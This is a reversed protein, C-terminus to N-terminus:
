TTTINRKIGRLNIGVAVPDLDDFFFKTQNATDTQKNTLHKVHPMEKAHGDKILKKMANANIHGQYVVSATPSNNSKALPYPNQYAYVFPISIETDNKSEETNMNQLNSMPILPINHMPQINPINQLGNTMGNQLNILGNPINHLGSPINHLGSPINQMSNPLGNQFHMQMNRYFNPDMFPRGWEKAYPYHINHVKPHPINNLVPSEHTTVEIIKDAKHEEHKHEHKPDPELKETLKQLFTQLLDTNKDIKSLIAHTLNENRQITRLIRLRDPDVRPVHYGPLPPIYNTTTRMGMGSLITTPPQPTITTTPIINRETTTMEIRGTNTMQSCTNNVVDNLQPIEHLKMLASSILQGAELKNLHLVQPPNLPIIVDIGDGDRAIPKGPVIISEINQKEKKLHDLQEDIKLTHQKLIKKMKEQQEKLHKVLPSPPNTKSFNGSRLSAMEKEYNEVKSIESINMQSSFVVGNKNVSKNISTHVEKFGPHHDTENKPIIKVTLKYNSHPALAESLDHVVPGVAADSPTPVFKPTTTDLNVDGFNTVYKGLIMPSEKDNYDEKSRALEEMLIHPYKSMLVNHRSKGTFANVYPNKLSNYVSYPDIYEFKEQIPKEFDNVPEPEPMEDRIARDALVNEDSTVVYVNEDSNKQINPMDDSAIIRIKNIQRKSRKNNKYFVKTTLPRKNIYTSMGPRLKKTFTKLRKNIGLSRKRRTLLNALIFIQSPNLKKEFIKDDIVIERTKNGKQSFRYPHHVELPLGLNNLEISNEPIMQDFINDSMMRERQVSFTVKKKRDEFIEQYTDYPLYKQDFIAQYENAHDDDDFDARLEREISRKVIEHSRDHIRHYIKEYSPIDEINIETTIENPGPDDYTKLIQQLGSFFKMNEYDPVEDVYQNFGISFATGDVDKVVFKLDGVDFYAKGNEDVIEGNLPQQLRQPIGNSRLVKSYDLEVGGMEGSNISKASSLFSPGIRKMNWSEGVNDHIKPMNESLSVSKSIPEMHRNIVNDLPVLLKNVLKNEEITLPNQLRKKIKLIHGSKRSAGSKHKNSSVGDQDSRIAQRIKEVISKILKKKKEGKIGKSDFHTEIEVFLEDDEKKPKDGYNETNPKPSRTITELENFNSNVKLKINRKLRKTQTESSKSRKKSSRQIIKHKKVYERLAKSILSETLLINGNEQIIDPEVTNIEVSTTTAITATEEDM